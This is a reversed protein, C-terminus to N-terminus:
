KLARQSGGGGREGGILARRGSNMLPVGSEVPDRNEIDGGGPRSEM